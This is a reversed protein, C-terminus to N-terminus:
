ECKMGVVDVYCELRRADVEVVELELDRLVCQAADLRTVTGVVVLVLVRVEVMRAHLGAEDEVALEAVVKDLHVQRRDQDHQDGEEAEPDRHLVHRATHHETHGRQEGQGGLEGGHLARQRWDGVHLGHVDPHEEADDHHKKCHDLESQGVVELVESQAAGSLHCRHHHLGTGALDRRNHVLRTSTVAGFRPDCKTSARLLLRRAVSVHVLAQEVPQVSTVRTNNVIHRLNDKRDGESRKVNHVPHVVRTSM